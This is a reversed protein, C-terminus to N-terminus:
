RTIIRALLSLMIWLSESAFVGACLPMFKETNKTIKTMMAGMVLSIVLSNPMLLGGLVMTPSIKFKKLLFGYCFGIILIVPDFRLTQVLLAKSKGRQAFLEPSGLQFNTFLLWLILGLSCATILLGIWQMLELNKKSFNGMSFIKIDFLYDSATAACIHFFLCIMTIHLPSLTFLLMMPIMIFTSFRGFQVLGIHGSILCIYYTAATTFTLFTIAAVPSFGSFILILASASGVTLTIAITALKVDRIIRQILDVAKSIYKHISTESTTNPRSLPKKRFMGWLGMIIEAIVLGCCLGTVLGEKTLSTSSNCLFSAGYFLPEILIYKSMMGVLLAGVIKIGATFGLAWLMPWLAISFEQGFTTPFLTIIKPFLGKFSLLGDRLFCFFATGFFGSFLARMPGKQSPATIVNYTLRSSPFPLAQTELFSKAFSSGLLIGFGGACLCLIGLKLAFSLPNALLISFASADLFFLMPLAFGVGVAITGGGAAVAQIVAVRRNMDGSGENKSILRLLSGCILAITPAMWPGLMTVISIYSLIAASLITFIVSSLIVFLSM